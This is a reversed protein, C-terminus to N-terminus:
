PQRRRGNLVADIDDDGMAEVTESCEDCGLVAVVRLDHARLTGDSPAGAARGRGLEAPPELVSPVERTGCHTLETAARTAGVERGREGQPRPAVSPRREEFRSSACGGGVAAVQGLVGHGLEGGHGGEGGGGVLLHVM